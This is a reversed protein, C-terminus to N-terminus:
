RGNVANDMGARVADHVAVPDVAASLAVAGPKRCRLGLAHDGPPRVM